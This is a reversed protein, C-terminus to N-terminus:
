DIKGLLYDASVNYKKCITYLFLTSILYHGSEYKAITSRDVNLVQAIKDQTIKNGKRFAKLRIGTIDLFSGEKENSYITIESFGFVYDLSVKFYDCLQILYKIPLIEDENEYHTYRSVSVDILSALQKQSVGVRERLQKVKQGYYM